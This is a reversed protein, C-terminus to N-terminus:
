PRISSPTPLTASSIPLSQCAPFRTFNLNRLASGPLEQYLHQRKTAWSTASSLSSSCGPVSALTSAGPWAAAMPHLWIASDIRIRNPQRNRTPQRDSVLREAPAEGLWQSPLQPKGSPQWSNATVHGLEHGFQYALVSMCSFRTLNLNASNDRTTNALPM